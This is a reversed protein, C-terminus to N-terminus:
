KPPPRQNLCVNGVIWIEQTTLFFHHFPSSPPLPHPTLRLLFAQPQHARDSPVGEWVPLATNTCVCYTRDWLQLRDVDSSWDLERFYIYRVLNRQCGCFFDQWPYFFFFFFTWCSWCCFSLFCLSVRVINLIFEHQFLLDSVVPLVHFKPWFKSTAPCEWFVHLCLVATGTNDPTHVTKSWIFINVWIRNWDLKLGQGELDRNWSEIM